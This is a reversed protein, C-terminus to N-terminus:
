DIFQHIFQVCGRTSMEVQARRSQAHIFGFVQNERLVQSRREVVWKRALVQCRPMVRIEKARKDGGLKL